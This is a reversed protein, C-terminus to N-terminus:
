RNRQCRVLVHGKMIWSESLTPDFTAILVNLNKLKSWFNKTLKFVHCNCHVEPSEFSLSM